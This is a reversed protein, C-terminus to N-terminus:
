HDMGARENVRMESGISLRGYLPSLSPEKWAREKERRLLRTTADQSKRPHLARDSRDGNEGPWGACASVHPRGLRLM